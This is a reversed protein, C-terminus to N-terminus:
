GHFDRARPQYAILKNLKTTPDDGAVSERLVSFEEEDDLFVRHVHMAVWKETFREPWDIEYEVAQAHQMQQNSIVTKPNIRNIVESLEATTMERTEYMPEQPM